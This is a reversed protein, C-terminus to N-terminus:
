SDDEDTLQQKGNERNYKLWMGVVVEAEFWFCRIDALIEQYIANPM